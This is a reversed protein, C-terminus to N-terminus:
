ILERRWPSVLHGVVMVLLYLIWALFTGKLLGGIQIYNIFDRTLYWVILLAVFIPFLGIFFSLWTQGRSWVKQEIHSATAKRLAKYAFTLGAVLVAIVIAAILWNTAISEWDEPEINDIFLRIFDQLM